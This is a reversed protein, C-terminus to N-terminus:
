RTGGWDIGQGGEEAQGPVQGKETAFVGRFHVFEDGLFPVIQTNFWFYPSFGWIMWKLLTKWPKGNYIMWKPTGKNKSVGMETCVSNPICRLWGNNKLPCENSKLPTCSELKSHLKLKSM